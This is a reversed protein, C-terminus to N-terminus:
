GGLCSSAFSLVLFVLSHDDCGLRALQSFQRLDAFIPTGTEECDSKRAEHTEEHGLAKTTLLKLGLLWEM